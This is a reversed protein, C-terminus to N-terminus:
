NDKKGTNRDNEHRWESPWVVWLTKDQIVTKKEGSV